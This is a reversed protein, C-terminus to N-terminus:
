QYQVEKGNIIIKEPVCAFKVNKLTIEKNELCAGYIDNTRDYGGAAFFGACILIFICVCVTFTDM